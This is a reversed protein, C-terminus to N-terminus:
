GAVDAVPTSHDGANRDAPDQQDLNPGDAHEIREGTLWDIVIGAEKAELKLHRLRSRPIGSVTWSHVTSTSGEIMRAVAAIGGLSAIVTSAYSM